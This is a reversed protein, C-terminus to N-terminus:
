AHAMVTTGAAHRAAIPPRPVVVVPCGAERVVASVNDLLTRGVPGYGRSGVFLLDVV